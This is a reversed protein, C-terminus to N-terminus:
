DAEEGTLLSLLLVEKGLILSNICELSKFHDRNCLLEWYMSNQLQTM